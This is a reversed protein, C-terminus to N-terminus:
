KVVIKKGDVIYVGKPLTGEQYTDAVKIGSITYVAGPNKPAIEMKSVSSTLMQGDVVRVSRLFYGKGTVGLGYTKM